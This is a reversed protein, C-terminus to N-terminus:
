GCRVTSSRSRSAWGTRAHGTCTATAAPGGARLAAHRRGLGARPDGSVSRLQSRAFRDPRAARRHRHRARRDPRPPPLRIRGRQLPVRDPLRGTVLVASRVMRREGDAACARRGARRRPLRGPPARHGLRGATGLHLRDAQRRTVVGAARGRLGRAHAAHAAGIRRRARRLHASAPRRDLRCRRAQVAAPHVAPAATAQRRGGRVGPRPGPGLLRSADWGAVLRARDRGRRSRDAAAGRGRGGSHCVAAEDERGPELRIRSQKRRAVLAPRCGAERGVHVPKGPRLRRGIGALDLEHLREDRSRRAM